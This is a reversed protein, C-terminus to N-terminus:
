TQKWKKLYSFGLLFFKILGEQGLCGLIVSQFLIPCLNKNEEKHHRLFTEDERPM